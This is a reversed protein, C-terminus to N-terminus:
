VVGRWYIYVLDGSNKPTVPLNPILYGHYQDNSNAPKIGDNFVTIPTWYGDWDSTLKAKIVGGGLHVESFTNINEDDQYSKIVIGVILGESANTNNIITNNHQKVVIGEPIQTNTQFTCFTM